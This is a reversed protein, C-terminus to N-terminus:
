TAGRSSSYYIPTVGCKPAFFQQLSIGSKPCFDLIAGIKPIISSFWM